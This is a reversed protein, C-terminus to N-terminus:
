FRKRVPARLRHGAQEFHDQAPPSSLYNMSQTGHRRMTSSQATYPCVSSAQASVSDEGSKSEPLQKESHFKRQSAAFSSSAASHWKSCSAIEAFTASFTADSTSTQAVTNETVAGSVSSSVTTSAVETPPGSVVTESTDMASEEEVIASTSSSKTVAADRSLSISTPDAADRSSPLPYRREVDPAAGPDPPSSSDDMVLVCVVSLLLRTEVIVSRRLCKPMLYILIPPILILRPKLAIRGELLPVASSLHQGKYLTEPKPSPNAVLLLPDNRNIVAPTVM